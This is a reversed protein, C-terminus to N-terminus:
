PVPAGNILITGDAQTPLLDFLTDIDAFINGGGPQVLIQNDLGQILNVTGVVRVFEMGVEPMGGFAAVDSFDTLGINNGGIALRQPSQIRNFIMGSGGDGLFLMTNNQISILRNGVNPGLNFIFGDSDNADFQFQNNAIM